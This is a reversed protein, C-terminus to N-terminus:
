FKGCKIKAKEWKGSSLCTINSEGINTFGRNCSYYATITGNETVNRVQGNKIKPPQECDDGTLNMLRM